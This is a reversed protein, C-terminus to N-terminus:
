TGQGATAQISTTGGACIAALWVGSPNTNPPTLLVQTGPLIKLSATTAVVGSQGMRISASLAGDNTVLIRLKARDVGQTGPILGSGTTTTVALLVGTGGDFPEFAQINISSSDSM